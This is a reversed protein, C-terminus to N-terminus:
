SPARKPLEPVYQYSPDQKQKRLIGAIERWSELLGNPCHPLDDRLLEHLHKLHYCPVSAYMHHETHYNMHWYLFRFFPNILITRCCLRFDPINDSLGIHQTHNCLNQLLSGYFGALTVVVPVMWYGHYLSVIVIAFHGVILIRSWNFLRRRERAETEPFLRHEWDGELRGFSLRLTRKLADYFGTVNVFSSRFFDRLTLPIPLLVEQDDPAHLTYKHHERHSAWYAVHNAWRFFSYIWLFFQNLSKTRFVSHHCLEHFGNGMFSFCTGHFWLLLLVVIWHFRGAAFCVSTGTLMLLGLYGVTQLMGKLDSRRSLEVLAKQEVPSRYWNIIPKQSEANM